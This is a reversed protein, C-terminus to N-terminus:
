LYALLGRLVNILADALERAVPAITGDNFAAAVAAPNTLLLWAASVTLTRSIVVTAATVGISM